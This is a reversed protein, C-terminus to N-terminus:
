VKGAKVLDVGNNRGEFYIKDVLLLGKKKEVNWSELVISVDTVSSWDSIKQFQDLPITYEQWNFGIGQLYYYAEENRKNKIVIKVVGPNGEEKARLAFHLAQYRDVNLDSLSLSYSKLPNLDKEFNYDVRILGQNLSHIIKSQLEERNNSLFATLGYTASSFIIVTIFLNIMLWAKAQQRYPKRQNCEKKKGLYVQALHDYIDDRTM